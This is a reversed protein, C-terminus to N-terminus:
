FPEGEIKPTENDQENTIEKIWNARREPDWFEDPNIGWGHDDPPSTYSLLYTFNIKLVSVDLVPLGAVIMFKEIVHNREEISNTNVTLFINSEIKVKWNNNFM